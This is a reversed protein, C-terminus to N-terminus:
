GPTSGPSRRRGRRRRACPRRTSAHRCAPRAPPLRATGSRRGAPRFAFLPWAKACLGGCRCPGAPGATGSPARRPAASPRAAREPRLAARGAAARRCWTAAASAAPSARGAPPTGRLGRAARRQQQGLDPGDDAAASSSRPASALASSRAVSAVPSSRGAIPSMPRCSASALSMMAQDSASPPVRVGACAALSARSSARSISAMSISSTSGARMCDSTGSVNARASPFSAGTGSSRSRANAPAGRRLVPQDRLHLVVLLQHQRLCLPQPVRRGPAGTITAPTM